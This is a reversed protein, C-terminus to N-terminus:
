DLPAGFRGGIPPETTDSAERVTKSFCLPCHRVQKPGGAGPWVERGRVLVAPSAEMPTEGTSTLGALPCPADAMLPLCLFRREIRPASRRPLVSVPVRSRHPRRDRWRAMSPLGLRAWVSGDGVGVSAIVEGSGVGVEGSGVGVEGSGVGVEGSGVGVEGSGDGLSVTEGEGESPADGDGEALAEIEGEGLAEEDAEGAAPGVEEVVEEGLGVSELRRLLRSAIM